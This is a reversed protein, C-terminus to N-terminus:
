IIEKFVPDSLASELGETDTVSVAFYYSGPELNDITASSEDTDLAAELEEVSEGIYVTYAEIESVALSSGDTRTSPATWSLSIRGQVEESSKVSSSSGGGGCASLLLVSILSILLLIKKKM